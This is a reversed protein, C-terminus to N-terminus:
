LYRRLETSRARLDQLQHTITNLQEAEMINDLASFTTIIDSLEARLKLSSEQQPLLM